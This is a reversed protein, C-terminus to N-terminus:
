KKKERMYEKILKSLQVNSKPVIKDAFEPLGMMVESWLKLKLNHLDDHPLAKEIVFLMYKSPVNAIVFLNDLATALSENLKDSGEKQNMVMRYMDRVGDIMGYWYSAEIALIPDIRTTRSQEEKEEKDWKDRRSHDTM